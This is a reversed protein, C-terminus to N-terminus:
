LHIAFVKVFAKYVVNGPELPDNALPPLQTNFLLTSKILLLTFYICSYTVILAPAHKLHSLLVRLEFLLSLTCCYKVRCM